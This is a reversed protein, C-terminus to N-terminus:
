VGWSSTPGGGFAETASGRDGASKFAAAPLFNPPLIGIYAAVPSYGSARSAWKKTTDLRRFLGGVRTGIM